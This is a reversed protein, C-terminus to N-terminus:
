QEYRGQLEPEETRLDLEVNFAAAIEALTQEEDRGERAYSNAVARALYGIVTGWDSADDFYPRVTMEPGDVMWVRALEMAEEAGTVGKPTNLEVVPM